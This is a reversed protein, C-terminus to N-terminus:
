GNSTICFAAGKWKGDVKHYIDLYKGEEKNNGEPSQFENVYIGYDWAIEGSSSINIKQSTINTSVFTKFFEFYLHRVAAQGMVLPVACIHLLPDDTMLELM